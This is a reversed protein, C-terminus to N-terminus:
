RRYKVTHGLLYDISVGFMDAVAFLTDYDMCTAENEWNSYTVQSVGLRQAMQAQTYDRDIRLKKLNIMYGGGIKYLKNIYCM